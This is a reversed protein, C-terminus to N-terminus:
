RANQEGAARLRKGHKVALGAFLNKQAATGKRIIVTNLGDTLFGIAESHRKAIHM